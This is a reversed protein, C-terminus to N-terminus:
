WGETFFFRPGQRPTEAKTGYLFPLTVLTWPLVETERHELTFSQIKPHKAIKRGSVLLLLVQFPITPLSGELSSVYGRKSPVKSCSKGKGLTPYTLKRSPVKRIPHSKKLPKATLKLSPLHNKGKWNPSTKPEWTMKLPNYQGKFMLEIHLKSIIDLKKM